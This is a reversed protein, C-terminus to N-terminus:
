AVALDQREAPEFMQSIFDESRLFVGFYRGFADLMGLVELEM